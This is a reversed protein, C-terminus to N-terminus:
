LNLSLVLMNETGARRRDISVKLKAPTPEDRRPHPGMSPAEKEIEMWMLVHLWVVKIPLIPLSALIALTSPAEINCVNPTEDVKAIKAVKAIKSVNVIRSTDELFIWLSDRGKGHKKYIETRIM